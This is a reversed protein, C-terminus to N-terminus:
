RLAKALGGKDMVAISELGMWDAMLRLEQRLPGAVETPTAHDEIHSALVQLTSEQRNAKLDLRAVIRDGLLFPLVYYGFQRKPAPTYIELRVYAGFLGETRDREFILPDFPALLAHAETKRPVKVDRPVYAKETWGKVTVPIAEGAEVLEALAPKSDAPDLRYYDRLCPETGIGHAKLSLLMLARIADRREPTPLAVIEKPLVRESLDYVREFAGRRTATTIEGAWFLWELATKSDSWGWWGGAAKPRAKSGTELEAAALPGRQAIEERVKDIFAQQERGFRALGKYIGEGRSARAMRWRFLPQLAVPLLSAEHAWYEFFARKRGGYSLHHLDDLSYRGLRAFPPLTHARAIINVSDIQLLGLHEVLERLQRKSAPGEPRTKDFGQAAIAIRRAEGISFSTKPMV